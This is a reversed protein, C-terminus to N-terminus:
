RSRFPMQTVSHLSRISSARGSSATRTVMERRLSLSRDMRTSPMSHLYQSQFGGGQGSGGGKPFVPLAHAKIQEIAAEGMGLGQQGHRFVQQLAAGDGQRLHVQDGHGPAQYM